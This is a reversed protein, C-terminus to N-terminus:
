QATQFGKDRDGTSVVPRPNRLFDLSSEPLVLPLLYDPSEGFDTYAQSPNPLSLFFQDPSSSSWDVPGQFPAPAVTFWLANISDVPDGLYSPWKARGGRFLVQAPDFSNRIQEYSLVGLLGPGFDVETPGAKRQLVCGNLDLVVGPIRHDALDLQRAHGRVYVQVLTSNPSNEVGVFDGNDSLGTLTATIRGRKQGTAGIDETAKRDVGIDQLSLLPPSFSCGPEFDISRDIIRCSDLTLPELTGQVDARLGCVNRDFYVEEFVGSTKTGAPVLILAGVDAGALVIRRLTRGAEPDAAAEIQFLASTGPQDTWVVVDQAISGEVTVGAPIRLPFIEGTNDESYGVVHGDSPCYMPLVVVRMGSTVIALAHSISDYAQGPGPNPVGNIGDM